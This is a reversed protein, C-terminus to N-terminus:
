ENIVFEWKFTCEKNRPLSLECSKRTAKYADSYGALVEVQTNSMKFHTGTITLMVGVAIGLVFIANDYNM